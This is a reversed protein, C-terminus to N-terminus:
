AIELAGAAAMEGTARRLSSEMGRAAGDREREREEQAVDERQNIKENRLYASQNFALSRTQHVSEMPSAKEGPGGM